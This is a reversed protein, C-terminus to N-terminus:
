VRVVRFGFFGSGYFGRFIGLLGMSLMLSM